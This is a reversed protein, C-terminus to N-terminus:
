PTGQREHGIRWDENEEPLPLFSCAAEKTSSGVVKKVKKEKAVGVKGWTWQMWMMEQVEKAGLGPNEGSCKRCSSLLVSFYNENETGGTKM